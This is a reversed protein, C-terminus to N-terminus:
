HKRAGKVIRLVGRDDFAIRGATFNREVIAEWEGSFRGRQSEPLKLIAMDRARQYAEVRQVREEAPMPSWAPMGEALRALAILNGGEHSLFLPEFGVASLARALSAVDFTQVHFANLSNIMSQTGDIFEQEDPENYLYLHGGPTLRERVSAFFERPHLIHTLMHNAVILDFPGQYPISFRDYDLRYEAPFGYAAQISSSSDRSCRCPTSM